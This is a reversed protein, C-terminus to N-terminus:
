AGRKPMARAFGPVRLFAPVAELDRLTRLRQAVRVNADDLVVKVVIAAVAGIRQEEEGSGRLARLGRAQYGARADRGEVVRELQRSLDRFEVRDAVAPEVDTERAREQRV